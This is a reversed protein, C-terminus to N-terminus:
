AAAPTRDAPLAVTFTSGHGPRSNCTVTGGHEEVIAKTISLGLGAGPISHARVAPSRFFRTFAQSADAATMGMGTDEVHLRVWGDGTSAYIRVIGGDPSYKIANSVLNDLVQGIRLPDAEAWLPASVDASLVVRMSSAHAQASSLAADVLAALDSRCPNVSVAPCGPMLLDSVLALLREANRQAIEIRRVAPDPLGDADGLVLDLNGIISTLPTRLEHSFNSVVEDKAALSEVFGTVENFQVVSGGSGGDADTFPRGGASVVRGGPTDGFCVLYDAFTEGAAARQIPRRGLPLPTAQGHSTLILEAEQVPSSAACPAASAELQSQWSNTLLRRGDTDLAVIGVDVTDLIRSLLRERGTGDALLSQVQAEKAANGQQERGLRSNLLWLALSVGLMVFPVLVATAIRGPTPSSGPELLWPLGALLPGFFSLPLSVPAPLRSCSIWVVPLVALLGLDPLGEVGGGRVLGIVAFDLVPIALPATPGFRQWPVLVCALLLGALLALAARGPANGLLGPWFAPASIAVAAMVLTLPLQYLLVQFRPPVARFYGDPARVLQQESM